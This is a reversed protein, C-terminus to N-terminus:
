VRTFPRRSASSTANRKTAGVRVPEDCPNQIRAQLQVRDENGLTTWIM